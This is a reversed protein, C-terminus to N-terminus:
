SPRDSVVVPRDPDASYQSWSGPYLRGAPLGAVELALLDHCATVGSGCYVVVDGDGTVGAEAYRRRLEAAPLFRGDGDLNGRCPVNVAGPVHGARPDVPERDGRYRAPERADLVVGSPDLVDEVGALREVPWPRPTFVAPARDPAAQELPGDWARVGGDLLAAAHGTVRLMWVLRAAVVGGADDYAVVTDDDGIGLAAMGEAFVAPDPLPHRGGAPSPPGALWRDLDVFVAGPLHGADYAARGSRGDLYWRVDAVVVGGGHVRLWAPDVVPPLM